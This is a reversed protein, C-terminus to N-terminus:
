NRVTADDDDDSRISPLGLPGNREGDKVIMLRQGPRKHLSSYADKLVGRLWSSRPRGPKRQCDVVSTTGTLQEVSVQLADHARAGERLCRVHGSLWGATVTTTSM